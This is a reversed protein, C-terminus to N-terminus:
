YKRNRAWAKGAFNEARNMAGAINQVQQQAGAAVVPALERAKGAVMAGGRMAVAGMAAGAVAAAFPSASAIMGSLSNVITPVFVVSIVMILMCAIFPIFDSISGSVDTSLTDVYGSIIRIMGGLVAAVVVPYLMYSLTAQLWRFFYDKTAEFIWCAIFIPALALYVAIIVQAFVIILAAAGGVVAMLITIVTSMIAGAFWSMPEMATNARTAFNSIFDDIAQALTVAGADAGGAPGTVSGGFQGLLAAAIGDMGGQVANAIPSFGSWQLGMAVILVLKVMTWLIGGLPMPRYQVIINLGIVILALTAAAAATSNLANAVATFGSEAVADLQSTASSVFGSTIGM